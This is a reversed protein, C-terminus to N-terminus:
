KTKKPAPPTPMDTTTPDLAAKGCNAWVPFMHGAGGFTITHGSHPGAITLCDMCPVGLAFLVRNNRVDQGEQDAAARRLEFHGLMNTLWTSKAQRVREEANALDRVAGKWQRYASDDPMLIPQQSSSNV